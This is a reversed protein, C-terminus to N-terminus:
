HIPFQKISFVYHIPKCAHYEIQVKFKILVRVAVSDYFNTFQMNLDHNLVMHNVHVSHIIFCFVNHIQSDQHNIFTVFFYYIVM